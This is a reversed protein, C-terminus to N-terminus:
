HYSIHHEKELKGVLSCVEAYSSGPHGEDNGEIIIETAHPDITVKPIRKRSFSSLDEEIDEQRKLLEKAENFRIISLAEQEMQQKLLAPPKHMLRKQCKEEVNNLSEEHRRMEEIHSNIPKMELDAKLKQIRDEKCHIVETLSHIKSPIEVLDHDIKLLEDDLGKIDLCCFHRKDEKERLDGLASIEETELANIEDLIAKREAMLEDFKTAKAIEARLKSIEDEIEEKLMKWRDHRPRLDVIRQDLVMKEKLLSDFEEIRKPLTSMKESSASLCHTTSEIEAKCEKLLAEGDKLYQLSKENDLLLRESNNTKTILLDKKNAIRDECEKLKELLMKHEEDLSSLDQKITQIEQNNTQLMKEGKKSLMTANHVIEEVMQLKRNRFNMEGVLPEHEKINWDELKIKEQEEKTLHLDIEQLRNVVQDYEEILLSHEKTLSLQQQLLFELKRDGDELKMSGHADGEEPVPLSPLKKKLLEMESHIKLIKSNCIEEEKCSTTFLDEQEKHKQLLEEKTKEKQEKLCQFDTLEKHEGPLADELENIEEKLAFTRKDEKFNWDDLSFNIADFKSKWEKYPKEEKLLEKQLDKTKQIELYMKSETKEKTQWLKNTFDTHLLSTLIPINSPEQLPNGEKVPQITLDKSTSM